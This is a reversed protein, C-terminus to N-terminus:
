ILKEMLLFDYFKGNVLLEKKLTGVIDFGYKKYLRVAYVQEPNVSLKIKLIVNNEKISSIAKDILKSGIGQNRYENTVYMGVINAIHKIKLRDEFYYSVTGIPQDDLLAFLANGIRNQWVEKPLSIEEEYSTVWALPDNKLAELRLKQYDKWRDSPLKEIEIMLILIERIAISAINYWFILSFKNTSCLLFIRM